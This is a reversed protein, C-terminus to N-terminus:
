EKLTVDYELNEMQESDENTQKFVHMKYTVEFNLVGDDVHATMDTGRILADDVTIYELINLLQEAVENCEARYDKAEPFYQLMFPYRREYRSGLLQNGASTLPTVLFCSALDQEIEDKYCKKGDGFSANIAQSIGITIKNLM